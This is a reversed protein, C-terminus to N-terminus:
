EDAHRVADPWLRAAMQQVRRALLTGDDVSFKVAVVLRADDLSKPWSDPVDRGSQRHQRLTAKVWDSALRWAVRDLDGMGMIREHYGIDARSRM